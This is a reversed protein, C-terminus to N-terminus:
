FNINLEMSYRVLLLYVVAHIALGLTTPCGSNALAGIFPRFLMNTLMYTYPNSVILFILVSFFSINWKQSSASM